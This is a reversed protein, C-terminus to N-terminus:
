LVGDTYGELNRKIKKKEQEHHNIHAVEVSEEESGNNVCSM